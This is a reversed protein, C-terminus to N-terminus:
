NPFLLHIHNTIYAPLGQDREHIMDAEGRAPKEADNQRNKTNERDVQRGTTHGKKRKTNTPKDSKWKNDATFAGEKRKKM